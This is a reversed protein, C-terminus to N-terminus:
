LFSFLLGLAYLVVRDSFSGESEVYYDFGGRPSPIKFVQFPTFSYSGSLLKGSLDKLFSDKDLASSGGVLVDFSYDLLGVLTKISRDSQHAQLIALAGAPLTDKRCRSVVGVSFCRKIHIHVVAGRSFISNCRYVYFFM